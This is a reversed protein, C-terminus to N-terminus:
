GMGSCWLAFHSISDGAQKFKSELKELCADFPITCDTMYRLAAAGLLTNSLQIVLLIQDAFAESCASEVLM